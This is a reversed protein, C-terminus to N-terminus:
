IQGHTNDQLITPVRGHLRISCIASRHHFRVDDANEGPRFIPLDQLRVFRIQPQDPILAGIDHGLEALANLFVRLESAPATWNDQGSQIAGTTLSNARGAM